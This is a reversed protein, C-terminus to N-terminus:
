CNGAAGVKTTLADGYQYGSSVNKSHEGGRGVAEIAIEAAKADRVEKECVRAGQADRGVVLGKALHARWLIVNAVVFVEVLMRLKPCGVM